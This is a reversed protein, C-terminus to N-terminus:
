LQKGFCAWPPVTQERARGKLAPQRDTQRDTQRDAPQTHSVPPINIKCHPFSGSLAEARSM